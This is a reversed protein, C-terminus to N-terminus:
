SKVYVPKLLFQCDKYDAIKKLLRYERLILM